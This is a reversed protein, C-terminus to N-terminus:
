CRLPRMGAEHRLSNQVAPDISTGPTELALRPAQDIVFRVPETLANLVFFLADGISRGIMTAFSVFAASVAIIVRFFSRSYGTGAM